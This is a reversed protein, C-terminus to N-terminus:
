QQSQSHPFARALSTIIINMIHFYAIFILPWVWHSIISLCVFDVWSSNDEGSQIKSCKVEHIGILIYLVYVPCKGRGSHRKHKHMYVDVFVDTQANGQGLIKAQMTIGNVQM